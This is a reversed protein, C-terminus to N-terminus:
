VYVGTQRDRSIVNENIFSEYQITELIFKLVCLILSLELM